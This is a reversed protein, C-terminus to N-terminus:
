AEYAWHEQLDHERDLARFRKVVQVAASAAAVALRDSDKQPPMAWLATALAHAAAVGNRCHEDEHVSLAHQLRRWCELVSSELGLPPRWVPLKTIVTLEVVVDIIAHGWTSTADRFSWTLRWETCAAVRRGDRKPGLLAMSELWQPIDAGVILYPWEVFTLCLGAAPRERRVRRRPKAVSPVM